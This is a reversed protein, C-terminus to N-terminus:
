PATLSISYIKNGSLFIAKQENDIIEFASAKSLADSAFQSIFQGDKTIKIIRSNNTDLIFLNDMDITTYIKSRSDVPSPLGKITFEERTGRVFKYISGDKGLIWVASDIAFDVPEAISPKKDPFYKSQAYGSGAPVYKLVILDKDLIYINGSYVSISVPKTWADKESILEKEAGSTKNISIVSDATLIYNSQDDQYYASGKKEAILNFVHNEDVRTQEAPIKVSQTQKQKLENEVSNLLAGLGSREESSQPFKSINERLLTRAKEFDELALENNLKKLSLGQDYLKQAKSNIDNYLARSQQQEQNARSLTIISILAIIIIISALFAIKQILSLRPLPIRIKKIFSTLGPGPPRPPLIFNDGPLTTSTEKETKEDVTNESASTEPTKRLVKPTQPAGTYSIIIAAQSGDGAEDIRSALSEAIDNPLELGLAKGLDEPPTNKAFSDTQILVLDGNQLFGSASRINPTKETKELITALKGNRKLQIKGKGVIFVYLIDSKFFAFCADADIQEPIERLTKELASLITSMNKDTLSFFEAELNNFIDKGVASLILEPNQTDLLKLSLAAFLNGAVYVQSWSDTTPAAIIKAFALSLKPSSYSIEPM